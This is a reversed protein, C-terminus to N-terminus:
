SLTQILQRDHESFFNLPVQPMSEQTILTSVPVVEYGLDSLEPLMKELFALTIPHPHGIAVAYGQKRAIKLLRNFQLTIAPVTLEGDLFVNRRLVPIHYENAIQEAVTNPTTRSDIFFLQERRLERMLWTMKQSDQTLQSGMHNNVGHAYPVAALDARLVNLFQRRNMSETLGGPGLKLKAVSQMPAHLMIDNGLKHARKALRKTYPQHPLFSYALPAPLNIARVGDQYNNGMDDIIISIKPKPQIVYHNAFVATSCLLLLCTYIWTIFKM